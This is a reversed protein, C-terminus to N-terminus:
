DDSRNREHNRRARQTSPQFSSYRTPLFRYLSDAGNMLKLLEVEQEPTPHLTLEFEDDRRLHKTPM